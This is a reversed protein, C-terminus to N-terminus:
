KETHLRKMAENFNGDLALPLVDISADVATGIAADDDRGARGLVWPVVRDKHSPHGIGIRLRHFKGHGLLRITDRLGNQGGHGGDFKLRAIGPALDLEDHAVLLQEPEIKWFRLAATISKGSLNMFTAPKLLWVSQGAIEVKAIEGFLKADLGWRVGHREVLADVFRFGANHRTQAHEPGPNGLGVIMRLASM